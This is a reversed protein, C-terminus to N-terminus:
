LSPAGNGGGLEKPRKTITDGPNPVYVSKGLPRRPLKGLAALEIRQKAIDLYETSL